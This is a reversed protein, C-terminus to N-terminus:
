TQWWSDSCDEFPSLKSLDQTLAEHLVLAKEHSKTIYIQPKLEGNLEFETKWGTNIIQNEILNILKSGDIDNELEAMLFASGNEDRYVENGVPYTEELLTRVCNLALQLSKQRGQLDGITVSRELFSLGDFRVSLIRWKLNDETVKNELIYRAAMAKWFAATAAGWESLRVENLPRQTDGVANNFAKEINQIFLDRQNISQVADLLESSKEESTIEFGFVSAIFGFTEKGLFDKMGPQDKDVHAVDHCNGLLRIRWDPYNKAKSPDKGEKIIKALSIDATSLNLPDQPHCSELISKIKPTIGSPNFPLKLNKWQNICKGWDHLYAAVEALLLADRKDALTTLDHTM